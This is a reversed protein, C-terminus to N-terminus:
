AVYHPLEPHVKEIYRPEFIDKESLPRNTYGLDKLAGVFSMTSAIYEQSLAACYKPSVAYTQLIFDKDVTGVLNAVIGAAKQPDERILKSALEHEELLDLILGEEEM